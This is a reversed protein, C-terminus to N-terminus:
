HRCWSIVWSPQKRPTSRSNNLEKVTLIKAGIEQLLRLSEAKEEDGQHVFIIQQGQNACKKYFEEPNFFRAPM